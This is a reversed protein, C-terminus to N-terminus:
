MHSMMCDRPAVLWSLNSHENAPATVQVPTLVRQQVVCFSQLVVTQEAKLNDILRQLAQKAQLDCWVKARIPSRNM